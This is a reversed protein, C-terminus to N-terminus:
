QELRRFFHIAYIKWEDLVVKVSFEDSVSEDVHCFYFAIINRFLCEFECFVLLFLIIDFEGTVVIQMWHFWLCVSGMRFSSRWNGKKLLNKLFSLFLAMYSTPTICPMYENFWSFSKVVSVFSSDCDVFFFKCSRPSLIPLWQKTTWWRSCM